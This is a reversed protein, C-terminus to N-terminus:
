TMRRRVFFIIPVAVAFSVGYLMMKRRFICRKKQKEHYKQNDIVSQGLVKMIQRPIVDENHDDFTQNEMKLIAIKKKLLDKEDNIKLFEFFNNTKKDDDKFTKLKNKLLLISNENERIQQKNKEIQDFLSSISM